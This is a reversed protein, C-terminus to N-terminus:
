HLTLPQDHVAPVVLDVECWYCRLNRWVLDFRDQAVRDPCRLPSRAGCAVRLSV